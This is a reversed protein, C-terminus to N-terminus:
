QQSIFERIYQVVSEVDEVTVANYLSIRIGTLSINPQKKARHSTITISSYQGGVSRHGKLGKLGRQEAGQLFLKEKGEGVVSFVVNMWSESGQKVKGKLAGKQEGEKLVDYVMKMKRRNTEEYYPLGGQEAMRELVLGCVYLSFVSPTNYLSGSDALTKYSMMVPVPSAGLKAAADVDVICDERVILITVGAPGINKQAGALIIAHDALRPIHRCMFSSSYDAVLPILKGEELGELLRFPFSAPAINEPEHSFEVGDVTENECYYILAPDHSFTYATHPPINDFSKGDESHTRSDVVVNVRGGGLRRAEEAAKKSWSGTIIYDMVAADKEADPHLLRWRALMNMVVAAFQMSGGGQTFLIRHTSPVALQTRISSEIGSLFSQFEPSRHSVETIGVGTSAFNYLGQAARELVPLPLPSPGAGFYVARDYPRSPAAM